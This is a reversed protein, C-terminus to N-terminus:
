LQGCTQNQNEDNGNDDDNDVNNGSSNDNNVDNGRMMAQTMATKM